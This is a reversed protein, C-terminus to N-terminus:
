TLTACASVDAQAEFANDSQKITYAKNKM